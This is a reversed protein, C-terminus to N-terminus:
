NKGMTDNDQNGQLNTIKANITQAILAQMEKMINSSILLMQAPRRHSSPSKSHHHHPRQKCCGPTNPLHTPSQWGKTAAVCNGFHSQNDVNNAHNGEAEPM